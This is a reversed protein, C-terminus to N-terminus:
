NRENQKRGIMASTIAPTPKKGEVQKLAEEKSLYISRGISKRSFGGGKYLYILIGGRQRYGIITHEFAKPNWEIDWGAHYVKTGIQLRESM